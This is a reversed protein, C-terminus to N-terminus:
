TRRERMNALAEETGCGGLGRIWVELEVRVLLVRGGIKRFPILRREVYGRVTKETCGLFGASTRIDM